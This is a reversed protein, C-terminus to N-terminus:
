PKKTSIRELKTEGGDSGIVRLDTMERASQRIGGICVSMSGWVFHERSKESAKASLSREALVALLAALVTFRLTTWM